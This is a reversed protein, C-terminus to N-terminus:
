KNAYYQDIIEMTQENAVGTSLANMITAESKNCTAAIKKADGPRWESRWKKYKKEPVAVRYDRETTNNSM